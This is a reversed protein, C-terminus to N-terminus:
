EASFKEQWMAITKDLGTDLDVLPEWRLIRWAKEPTSNLYYIEGPRPLKRGWNIVGQWNLKDQIMEALVEIQIANDPGTVFTENRVLD